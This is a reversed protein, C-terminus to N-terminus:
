GRRLLTTAIEWPGLALKIMGGEVPLETGPDGVLSAAWARAFPGRIVAARADRTENVVRLELDDGRRRVASMVVGDGEIWLGAASRLPANGNGTGRAVLFGHRYAELARLVDADPAGRHPMLAFPVRRPGVGQGGPAEIVPGAPEARWPHMDRSILGTSRLLTLALESGDVLEYETLHELLVAAGEAAALGHAPFTPLPHEGHGGEMTLGREIIAYQGESWSRDTPAPLPVHFRVRHDRAGNEFAVELRVFPEGMRLEVMTRVVTEVSALTRRRLDPSLGRPWAYARVVELVGRLPGGEVMSIGVATPLDVTADHEPPAYNYSDGADGGDVIRGVGALRVGAGDITLTGDAAVEVSTLGNALRRPGVVVHGTAPEVGPVADSGDRSGVLTTWGLPPAVVRVLLRRQASAIVRLQWVIGPSAAEAAAAVGRLEDILADIDLIPPDPIRSVDLVFLDRGSPGAGPEIRFGDVLYTYLERAHMRDKLYRVVDAAAIPRDDVVAAKVDLEQVPVVSGDALAFTVPHDAPAELQVLDTRQSPSPNWVVWGSVPLSRAISRMTADVLGRAVQEATAYRALVQDVTEEASCACISDHASDEIVARWALALEREPWAGGHLAILPEARRELWREARGAAQKVDIRHSAVGMLVNARAGSRLEGQWSLEPLCDGRTKTIYEALTEIRVDFRDQGADFDAVMAAYGPRPISHDEGYMALIEDDGFWPRMEGVYRDLKQEIRDPLDFIDRANGYGRYLYECRVASGNPSRWTFSHRDIAHPVGRWVVADGIGARTLIQPMQAVHGFMDPLYGVRMVGGLEAARRIGAELNRVITEGSVLYEDMLIAWPGIALRGDAVLRTVRDAAEPRLELYDDVTATQGDLTFRVRPDAEMEELLGDILSVLRLRFTQFPLYWERDWHTHPVLHIVQPRTGRSEAGEVEARGTM